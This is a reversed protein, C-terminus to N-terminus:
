LMFYIWVFVFTLAHNYLLIFSLKWQNQISQLTNKDNKMFKRSFYINGTIIKFAKWIFRDNFLHVHLPPPCRENAISLASVNTHATLRNSRISNTTKTIKHVGKTMGHTFGNNIVSTSICKFKSFAQKEAFCFVNFM